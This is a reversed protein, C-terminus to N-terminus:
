RSGHMVSAIALAGFFGGVLVVVGLTSACTVAIASAALGGMRRGAALRKAALAGGVGLAVSSAMALVVYFLLGPTADRESFGNMGMILVLLGFAAAGLQVVAVVVFVIIRM